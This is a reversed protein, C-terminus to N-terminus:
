ALRKEGTWRPARGSQTAQMGHRRVSRRDSERDITVDHIVYRHHSPLPPNCRWAVNCVPLITAAEIAVTWAVRTMAANHEIEIKTKGWQKELWALHRLMTIVHAYTHGQCKCKSNM